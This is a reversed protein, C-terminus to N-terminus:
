YIEDLDEFGCRHTIKHSQISIEHVAFLRRWTKSEIGLFSHRARPLVPCVRDVLPVCTHKVELGGMWMYVGSSNVSHSLSSHPNSGSKLGPRAVVCYRKWVSWNETSSSCIQTPTRIGPNLCLWTLYQLDSCSRFIECLSSIWREVIADWKNSDKHQVIEPRTKKTNRLELFIIIIVKIRFYHLRKFENWASTSFKLRRINM